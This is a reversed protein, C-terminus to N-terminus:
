QNSLIDVVECADATCAFEQSSVTKDEKEFESLKSWDINEPMVSKLEKYEDLTLDQYPAQRYVHDTFPLFSVGCMEDFHNWVYSGVQMWEDEKVSITISPKHECWSRQYTRWLDLHQIATMDNRTISLEPSKIPFSFVIIDQPQM